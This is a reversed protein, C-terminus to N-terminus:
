FLGDQMPINEPLGCIKIRNGALKQFDKINQTYLTQAKIGIASALIHADTKLANRADKDPRNSSFFVGADILTEAGDAACILDFDCIRFSKELYALAMNRQEKTKLCLLFELVVISPIYIITRKKHLETVLYDALKHKKNIDPDSSESFFYYSLVNTDLCCIDTM